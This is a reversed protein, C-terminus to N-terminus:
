GILVLSFEPSKKRTNNYFPNCPTRRTVMNIASVVMTPCPSATKLLHDKPHPKAANPNNVTTITSEDQSLPEHLGDNYHFDLLIQGPSREDFGAFRGLLMHPNNTLWHLMLQCWAEFVSSNQPDLEGAHVQKAENLVQENHFKAM